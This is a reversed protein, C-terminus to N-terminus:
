RCQSRREIMESRGAHLMQMEAVVFIQDSVVALGGDIRRVWSIQPHQTVRIHQLAIQSIDTIRASSDLGHVVREGQGGPM